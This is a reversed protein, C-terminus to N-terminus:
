NLSMTSGPPVPPEDDDDNPRYHPARKSEVPPRRPWWRGPLLFLSFFGLMLATFLIITVIQM